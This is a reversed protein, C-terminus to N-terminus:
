GNEFIKLKDMLMQMDTKKIYELAEIINKVEYEFLQKEITLGDLFFVINEDSIYSIHMFADFGHNSEDIEWIITIDLSGLIVNDVPTVGLMFEHKPDICSMAINFNIDDKLIKLRKNCIPCDFVKLYEIVEKETLM